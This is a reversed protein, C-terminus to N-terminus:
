ERLGAAAIRKATEDRCAKMHAISSPQVPISYMWKGYDGRTAEWESPVRNPEGVRQQAVRMEVFAILRELQEDSFRLAAEVAARRMSATGRDGFICDQAQNAIQRAEAERDPNAGVLAEAMLNPVTGLPASTKPMALTVFREALKEKTPTAALAASQALSAFVLPIAALMVRKVRTIGVSGTM